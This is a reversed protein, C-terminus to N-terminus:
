MTSLRSPLSGSRGNTVDPSRAFLMRDVERVELAPLHDVHVTDLFSQHDLVQHDGSLREPDATVREGAALAADGESALVM